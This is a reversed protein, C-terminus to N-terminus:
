FLLMMIMSDVSKNANLEKIDTANIIVNM